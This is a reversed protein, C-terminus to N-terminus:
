RRVTGCRVGAAYADPLASNPAFRRGDTGVEVLAGARLEYYRVLGQWGTASYSVVAHHVRGAACGWGTHGTATTTTSLGVGTAARWNRGDVTVLHGTDGTRALVEAAGDGDVDAFGLLEAAARDTLPVWATRRGVKSLEARVGLWHQGRDTWGVLRVEDPRGDGDADGRAVPSLTTPTRFTTRVGPPAERGRALAVGVTVPVLLSVAVAGM